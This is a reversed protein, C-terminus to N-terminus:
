SPLPKPRTLLETAHALSLSQPMQALWHVSVRPVPRSSGRASAPVDQAPLDTVDGVMSIIELAIAMRKCTDM